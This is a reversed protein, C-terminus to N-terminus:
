SPLDARIQDLRDRIRAAAQRWTWRALASASARAGREGAEQRHEYVYRMTEALHDVRPEAWRFGRYYPCKAEAPVLRFDVPYGSGSDFFHMHGGWATAIVPIGCAMAELIPMGWGEGRTPLVFCDSSRYLSGMQHGPLSVNQLLVIPPGEDAIGAAAMQQEINVSPDNNSVKLILAVDDRPTFARAFADLLLEPAKREGWEFVSLFTFRASPRFSAIHPNFHDPDVGLPMVHIPVAVGCSAFTDANFTTPVWIEDMSNCLQVWDDPIGDVELMTYGIRYRGSNKSFLEAPAYVVQPLNLDKPRCRMAALRHDDRAVDMWDTGYINALRVDVGLSDIQLLLERSSTAYGSMSGVESHWFVAPRRERRLIAGWSSVFTRRSARQIASFDARNERASVNEHHVLTVGGACMTRFGAEAARLCYDTDEYYSFYAEDLLGVSDLVMRRIYMCAGVVSPVERDASFQNVDKEFSGIQQGAMKEVPVYAGAHLLRGDPMVLRCGVIGVDEEAYAVDQLSELWGDRTVVVDNNLLLIDADSPAARIGANCGRAYGLNAGNRVLTIWDLGELYRLTGDTSGNDVVIACIRDGISTHDRLSELCARTFDLANWTLLVIAVRPRM